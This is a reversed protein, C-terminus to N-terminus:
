RAGATTVSRQIPISYREPDLWLINTVAQAAFRSTLSEGLRQKNRFEKFFRIFFRISAFSDLCGRSAGDAEVWGPREEQILRVISHSVGVAKQGLQIQVQPILQGCLACFHHAQAKV